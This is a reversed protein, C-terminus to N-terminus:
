DRTSKESSKHGPGTRVLRFVMETDKGNRRWTWRETIHDKDVFQLVLKQEHGVNSDPLNGAGTFVFELKMILNDTPVARMRPQNNTPCYHTLVISDIDLSYLTVMEEMNAMALTEMIATDSAVPLFKSKVPHGQDDKGEWEGALNQIKRFGERASPASTPQVQPFTAPLALMVLILGNVAWRCANTM